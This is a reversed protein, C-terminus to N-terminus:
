RDGTTRAEQRRIRKGEAEAQRGRPAEPARFSSHRTPCIYHEERGVLAHGRRAVRVVVFLRWSSSGSLSSAEVFAASIKLLPGHELRTAQKSGLWPLCCEVLCHAARSRSATAATAAAVAAAVVVLLATIVLAVSPRTEVGPAQLSRRFSGLHTPGARVPASHTLRTTKAPTKDRESSTQIHFCVGTNYM